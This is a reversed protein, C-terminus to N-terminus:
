VVLFIVEAHQPSCRKNEVTENPQSLCDDVKACRITLSQWPVPVNLRLLGHRINIYVALGNVLPKRNM